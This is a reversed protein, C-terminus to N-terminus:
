IYFVRFIEGFSSNSGTLSNMLTAHYLILICFDTANRYLCLSSESYNLFCHCKCQMFLIIYIEPPSTFFRGALCSVHTQDRPWSSGGSFSIAVWESIRAQSIGRISSGPSSCNMPDCLTLCSFMYSTLSLFQLCLYISLYETSM